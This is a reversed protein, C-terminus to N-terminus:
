LCVVLYPNDICCYSCWMLVMEASTVNEHQVYISHVCLVITCQLASCNHISITSQWHWAYQFSWQWQLEDAASEAICNRHHVLVHISNSSDAARLDQSVIKIENVCKLLKSQLENWVDAKYDYSLTFYAVIELIITWTLMTTCKRKHWYEVLLQNPKFVNVVSPM